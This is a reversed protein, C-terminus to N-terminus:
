RSARRMSAVDVIEATMCQPVACKYDFSHRDCKAYKGCAEKIEARLKSRCAELKTSGKDLDM